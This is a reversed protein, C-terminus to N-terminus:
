RLQPVLWSQMTLQSIQSIAELLRLLWFPLALINISIMEGWRQVLLLQLRTASMPSKPDWMASPSAVVGRRQLRSSSAVVGVSAAAGGARARRRRVCLRELHAKRRLKRPQLPPQTSGSVGM